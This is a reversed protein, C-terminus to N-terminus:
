RKAPNPVAPGITDVFKALEIEAGNTEALIMACRLITDIRDAPVRVTVTRLDPSTRDGSFSKISKAFTVDPGAIHGIVWNNLFAGLESLDVSAPDDLFRKHVVHATYLLQQHQRMHMGLGDYGYREMIREERAFHEEVHRLLAVLTSGVKEPATNADIEDQLSNLIDILLKHDDDIAKIETALEATFTLKTM